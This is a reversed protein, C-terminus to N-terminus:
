DGASDGADGTTDDDTGEPMLDDILKTMHMGRQVSPDYEFSLRPTRKLSLERAIKGQLFAHASELGALTAAQKKENGLVAVHVTGERLDRSVSVGTVTVLGIRPDELEGIAEAVVARVAENVRRMRDSM